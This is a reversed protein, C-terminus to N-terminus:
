EETWSDSELILQQCRIRQNDPVPLFFSILGAASGIIWGQSASPATILWPRLDKVKKPQYAMLIQVMIDIKYFPASIM